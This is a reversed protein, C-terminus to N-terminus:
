SAGDSRIYHHGAVRTLAMIEDTSMRVDGANRLLGVALRGRASGGALRHAKRIRADGVLEFEVMTVQGKSTIRVIESRRTLTIGDSTRM